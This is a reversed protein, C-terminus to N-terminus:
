LWAKTFLTNRLYEAVAYPMMSFRQGDCRYGVCFDGIGASQFVRLFCYDVLGLLAFDGSCIDADVISLVDSM